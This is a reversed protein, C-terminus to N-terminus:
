RFEVKGFWYVGVGCVQRCGARKRDLRIIRDGM